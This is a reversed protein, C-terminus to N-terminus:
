GAHFREFGVDAVPDFMPVVIGTGVNPDLGGILDEFCEGAVALFHGGGCCGVSGIGSSVIEKGIRCSPVSSRSRVARASTMMNPWPSGDPRWSAQCVTM